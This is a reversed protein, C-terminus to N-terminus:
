VAALCVTRFSRSNKGQFRHSAPISILLSHFLVNCLHVDNHELCASGFCAVISWILNGNYKHPIILTYLLSQILTWTRWPIPQNSHFHCSRTCLTAIGRRCSTPDLVKWLDRAAQPAQVVTICSQYNTAFYELPSTCLTFNCYLAMM